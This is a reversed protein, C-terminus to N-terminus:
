LDLGQVGASWGHLFALVLLAGVVRRSEDDLGATMSAADLCLAPYHVLALTDAEVDCLEDHAAEVEADTAFSWGVCRPDRTGAAQLTRRKESSTPETV